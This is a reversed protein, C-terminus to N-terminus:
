GRKTEEEQLIVQLMYSAGLREKIAEISNRDYAPENHAPSITEKTTAITESPKSLPDVTKEKSDVSANLTQAEEWDRPVIEFDQSLSVDATCGCGWMTDYSDFELSYTPYCSLEKYYLSKLHNNFWGHVKKKIKEEIQSKIQNNLEFEHTTAEDVIKLDSINATKSGEMKFSLHWRYEDNEEELFINKTKTCTGIIKMLSKTDWVLEEREVPDHSGSVDALLKGNHSSFSIHVHPSTLFLFDDWIEYFWEELYIELDETDYQDPIDDISIEVGNPVNSISVFLFRENKTIAMITEYLENGMELKTLKPEKKM